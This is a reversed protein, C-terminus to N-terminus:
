IRGAAQFGQPSKPPENDEDRDLVRVPTSLFAQCSVTNISQPTSFPHQCLTHCLCHPVIAKQGEDNGIFCLIHVMSRGSLVMFCPNHSLQVM